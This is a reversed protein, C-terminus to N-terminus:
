LYGDQGALSTLGSSGEIEHEIIISKLARLPDYEEEAAHLAGMMENIYEGSIVNNFTTAYVCLLTIVQSSQISEWDIKYIVNGKLDHEEDIISDTITFNGSKNPPFGIASQRVLDQYMEMASVIVPRGSNDLDSLRCMTGIHQSIRASVEDILIVFGNSQYEALKNLLANELQSRKAPLRQSEAIHLEGDRWAALAMIPPSITLCVACIKKDSM